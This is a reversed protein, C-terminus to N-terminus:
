TDEESVLLTCCTSERVRFAQAVRGRWAGDRSVFGVWAVSDDIGLVLARARGSAPARASALFRAVTTEHGLGLPSFREGRRPHRMTVRRPRRSLAVCACATDREVVPGDVLRARFSRGCAALAVGGGSAAALAAGDLDAAACVHTPERRRLRLVGEARLAEVGRGLSARGAEDRRACLALLAEVIRREVLADGGLAARAAEHLVLARLAPSEEALAAVDLAALDGPELARAARCTADAAVAALVDAEAAAMAATEALTEAVRPNLRALAPLVDLRLANRAYVPRANTVDDGFAIGGARCYDRIEAAGLCLLPRALRGDRPRMGALSRPSAYKTLRYLVTEAQDDRNHATVIVARGHKDALERAREYRLARARAQFGAGSLRRRLRVVHLPVGAEACAREVIERDRDSDAGRAAYDVHLASLRLRLGLHADVVPLLALLAMSDAGGSLMLLAHEDVCLVAEREVFAAVRRAIRFAAADTGSV